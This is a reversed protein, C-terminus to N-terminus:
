EKHQLRQWLTLTLAKRGAQTCHTQHAPFISASSQPVAGLQGMGGLHQEGECGGGETPLCTVVLSHEAGNGIFSVGDAHWDTLWRGDVLYRFACLCGYPLDVVAHWRGDRVQHMPTAYPNWDNFDGVIFIQHARLCAPLEFVVRVQDPADSLSKYIM